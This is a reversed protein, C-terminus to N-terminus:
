SSVHARIRAQAQKLAESVEVPYPPAAPALARIRDPLRALEEQARDRAENLDVHGAPLRRGSEMVKCLLPRGPLAEDHKALIDRVAYGHEELRFIQKQGPLIPKGPSTKLRGKGAYATLKYAIDLAPADTSVGMGTGVGFATIPARQKVIEAIEYEDLGGSAFIEVQHLGAEDLVRRAAFALAALDGSDLRIGRVQFDEGLEQTLAIVKKVGALTDYTDVLLITQPYLTAFARFAKIEEDYAQIYSHAMTGAIPVGYVYGAFVNSTAKVGAIHFARAAKVGADTGHMRRLGFDVIARGQAATVVRSAKSAMVTQHHIQNMIFSEAIQAETIPAVVELLPENGFIPTGEPVAYVAGTFRLHALWGLFEESFLGVTSLYDLAEDTFRLHELYRLTDDLGCALLYNRRQPLKRVFLSFVAEEQMAAKWYAQVMTLEYLDTLLAANEDNIWPAPAKRQREREANM